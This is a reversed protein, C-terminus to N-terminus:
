KDLKLNNLVELCLKTEEKAFEECQETLDEVSFHYNWDLYRLSLVYCDVKLDQNTLHICYGFAFQADWTNDMLAYVLGQVCEKSNQESLVECTQVTREINGTRVYNSIDRGLSIFCNNVFAGAKRCTEIIKKDNMGLEIMISTQMTFCSAGYKSDLRSCPYLPDERDIDRLKKDFATVNEMFVGGYCSNQDYSTPFLDCAALADDLNYGLSYLIAHGGGHVCQFIVQSTPNSFKDPSCMTPIVKEMDKMSLHQIDRELDVEDIFMREMVGHYCGSHCSQDCADFADGVTGMSVLTWRGIAHSIPHCEIEITDSINRSREMEALLDKTTRSKGAYKEIFEDLCVQKDEITTNKICEEEIELFSEPPPEAVEAACAALLIFFSLSSLLTRLNM